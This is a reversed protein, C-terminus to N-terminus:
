APEPPFLRSWVGGSPFLNLTIRRATKWGAGLLVVGGGILITVLAFVSFGDFGTESLVTSLAATFTLLSAAILARRNLALSILGLIVLAALLVVGEIGSGTSIVSGSVIGRLGYIVQPAAALHLWFANDSAKRIREPDKMDFWVAAALTLLGMILIAPGGFISMTEGERVTLAYFVLAVLLAIVGLSFPLKYRWYVFLAAGLGGLASIIGFDWIRIMSTFDPRALDEIGVASARVTAVLVSALGVLVVTLFMSPLLLRRRACFYEMLVVTLAGMPILYILAAGLNFGSEIAGPVALVGLLASVGLYLIFLGLTIFVDNFNALFRLNELEGAGSDTESQGLKRSALFAELRAAQDASLIDKSVAARLDNRDFM